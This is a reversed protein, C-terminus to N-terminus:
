SVRRKALEDGLLEAYMKKLEEIPLEALGAAEAPPSIEKSYQLWTRAALVKSKDDDTTATKHLAEMVEQTKDPGGIIDM